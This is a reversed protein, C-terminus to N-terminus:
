LIGQVYLGVTAGVIRKDIDLIKINSASSFMKKESIHEPSHGALLM